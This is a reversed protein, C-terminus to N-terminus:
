LFGSADWPAARRFAPERGGQSRRPAPLAAVAALKNRVPIGLVCKWGVQFPTVGHGCESVSKAVGLHGDGADEGNGQQKHCRGSLGVCLLVTAALAATKVPSAAATPSDSGTPELEVAIPVTRPVVVAVAEAWPSTEVAAAASAVRTIPATAVSGPRAKPAVLIGAAAAVVAEIPPAILVRGFRDSSTSAMGRSSWPPHSEM